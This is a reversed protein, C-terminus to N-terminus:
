RSRCTASACITADAAPVADHSAFTEVTASLKEAMTPLIAGAREGDPLQGRAQFSAKRRTEDPARGGAGHAGGRRAGAEFAGRVKKPNHRSSMVRRECHSKRGRMPQMIDARGAGADGLIEDLRRWHCYDSAARAQRGVSRGIV